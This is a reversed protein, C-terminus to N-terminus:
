VLAQLLCSFIEVHFRKFKLLETMENLIILQYCVIVGLLLRYNECIKVPWDLTHKASAAAETWLRNPAGDRATVCWDFQARKDETIGEIFNVM